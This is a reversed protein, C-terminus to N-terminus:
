LSVHILGFVLDVDYMDFHSFCLHFFGRLFVLHFLLTRRSGSKLGAVSSAKKNRTRRWLAAEKMSRWFGDALLFAIEFGFGEASEGFAKGYGGLAPLIELSGCTIHVMVIPAFAPRGLVHGKEDRGLQWVGIRFVFSRKTQVPLRSRLGM